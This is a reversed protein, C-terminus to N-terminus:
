VHVCGWMISQVAIIDDDVDTEEDVSIYICCSTMMVDYMSCTLVTSGRYDPAWVCM